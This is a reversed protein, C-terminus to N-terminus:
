YHSPGRLAGIPTDKVEGLLFFFYGKEFAGGRFGTEPGIGGFGLLDLLLDLGVLPPEIL